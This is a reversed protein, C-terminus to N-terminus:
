NGIEQQLFRDLFTPIHDSNSSADSSGASESSPPEYQKDVDSEHDCEDIDDGLNDNEM